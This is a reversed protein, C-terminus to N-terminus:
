DPWVARHLTVPDQSLGLPGDPTTTEGTLRWIWLGEPTALKVHQSTIQWPGLKTSRLMTSGFWVEHPVPHECRWLKDTSDRSLRIGEHMGIIQNVAVAMTEFSDRLRVWPETTTM